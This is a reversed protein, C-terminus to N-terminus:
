ARAIRALTGGTVRLLDDAALEVDLGRRGGSVFITAFGSASEDVVTPLATRQGVPSIGGVVYGTRREALAPDALSAKKEGVAAALAKLDLRGAVPVVGVVLAGSATRAVLTKFVRDETLGLEAAAEEGFNTATDHHEYEHVTFPVGAAVLATTAPTGPAGPRSGGGGAAGAGGSM